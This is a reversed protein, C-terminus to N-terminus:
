SFRGTANEIFYDFTFKVDNITLPQGDHWTAGQVITMTYETLDANATITEALWPQPIGAADLQMLSDYQLMLLNWGPFGSIYTYPNITDEGGTIAARVTIPDAPAATTDPAVTTEGPAPATTATDGPAATTTTTTDDSDGCAAAVLAIVVLLIPLTWRRSM